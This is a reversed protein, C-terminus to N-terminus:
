TTQRRRVNQLRRGALEVTMGLVFMDAELQRSTEAEGRRLGGDHAELLFDGDDDLAIVPLAFAVVDDADMLFIHALREADHRGLFVLIFATRASEVDNLEQAGIRSITLRVKLCKM